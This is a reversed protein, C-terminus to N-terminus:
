RRRWERFVADLAGAFRAFSRDARGGIRELLRKRAQPAGPDPLLAAIPAARAAALPRRAPWIHLTSIRGHGCTRRM